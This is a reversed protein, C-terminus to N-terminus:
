SSPIIPFSRNVRGMKSKEIKSIPHARKNSPDAAKGFVRVEGEGSATPMKRCNPLRRPHGNIEVPTGRRNLKAIENLKLSFSENLNVTNSDIKKLKKNCTVVFPYRCFLFFISNEHISHNLSPILSKLKPLMGIVYLAAGIIGAHNFMEWRCESEHRPRHAKM